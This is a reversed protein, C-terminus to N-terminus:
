HGYQQRPSRIIGYLARQFNTVSVETGAAVQLLTEDVAEDFTQFWWAVPLLSPPTLAPTWAGGNGIFACFPARRPRSALCCAALLAFSVVLVSRRVPTQTERMDALVEAAAGVDRAVAHAELIANQANASPRFGRKAM